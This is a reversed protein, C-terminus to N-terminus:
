YLRGRKLEVFGDVRRLIDVINPPIAAVEDDSCELVNAVYRALFGEIM